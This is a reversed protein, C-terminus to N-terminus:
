HNKPKFLLLFSAGNENAYTLKAKLQRSLLHVLRLGLTESSEVVIGEPLGPGSDKIQLECQETKNQKLKIQICGNTRQACGYKISNTLLENVILGLPVASDVDMVVADADVNITTSAIGYAACIEEKLDMLFDGFDITTLHDTQYLKKHILAMSKVRNRGDEVAKLADKDEITDSQLNLLSSVIQLNNKVRHHTEKLLTEKEVLAKELAEKQIAIREQQEQLYTNAKKRALNTRVIIAIVILLMVAGFILWKIQVSKVAADAEKAKIRLESLENATAFALSDTIREQAFENELELAVLTTAKEVNIYDKQLANYRELYAFAKKYEGLAAYGTKLNECADKEVWDWENTEALQLAKSCWVVAERHRELKNLVRSYVNYGFADDATQIAADKRLSLGWEVYHLASDIEEQELSLNALNSLTTSTQNSNTGLLKIRLSKQYYWSASDLQDMRKHVVGMNGYTESIGFSDQKTTYIDLCTRYCALAKEYQMNKEYFVGINNSTVAMGVGYPDVKKLIDLAKLNYELSKIPNNGNQYALGIRTYARTLQLQDGMLKLVKAGELMSEISEKHKGNVSLVIGKISYSNALGLSDNLRLALMRLSDAHVGAADPDNNFIYSFALHAHMTSRSKERETGKFEMLAKKLIEIAKGPDARQKRLVYVQLRDMRLSDSLSTDSWQQLLTDATQEQAISNFCFVSQMLFLVMLFLINRGVKKSTLM